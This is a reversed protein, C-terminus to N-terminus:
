VPGGRFGLERKKRELDESRLLGNAHLEELLRLQGIRADVTPPPAPLPPARGPSALDLERKKRELDESRLLGNAHLEELLRLQGIRADVAPPPASAGAPQPHGLGLERKKRELDESRLAGTEHLEELFRLQGLRADVPPPASASGAAAPLLEAPVAAPDYARPVNARVMKWQFWLGIAGGAILFVGVGGSVALAALLGLGLFAAAVPFIFQALRYRAESYGATFATRGALPRLAEHLRSVFDSYIAQRRPDAFGQPDGDTVVLNFDDAFRIRCASTYPTRRQALVTMLSSGDAGAAYEGGRTLHIELIDSLPRQQPREDQMWGVADGTVWVGHDRFRLVLRAGGPVVYLDYQPADSPNASM